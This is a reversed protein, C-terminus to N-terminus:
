VGSFIVTEPQCWRLLNEIAIKSLAIFLFQKDSRRLILYSYVNGQSLSNIEFM